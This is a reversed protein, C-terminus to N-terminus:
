PKMRPGFIATGIRVYDAGMAAAIEYDGSMGMSLKSIGHTKALQAMASFHPAPDQDLPPLCMLGEIELCLENRCASILGALAAPSVGGKQPEAGINVQIFLRPKRGSDEMERALARALKTRDVTEIVDFLAVAEKIKNTQLGGILHLELDPFREKLRPWRERAEQIRNEGFCRAGAALAAEIKAETQRKTVAVVKCAGPNRGARGLAQDLRGQVTELNAKIDLTNGTMERPELTSTAPRM